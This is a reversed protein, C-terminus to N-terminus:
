HAREDEEARSLLPYRQIKTYGYTIASPVTIARHSALPPSLQHDVITVDNAGLSIALWHVPMTESLPWHSRWHPVGELVQTSQEDRLYWPKADGAFVARVRGAKLLPLVDQQWRQADAKVEDLAQQPRVKLDPLWFLKHTFVLAYRYSQSPDLAKKLFAISAPTLHLLGAHDVATFYILRVGAIEEWYCPQRYLRQYAEPFGQAVHGPDDHNGLVWRTPPLLFQLKLLHHMGSATPWSLQDGGFVVLDPSQLRAQNLVFDLPGTRPAGGFGLAAPDRYASESYGNHSYIHGMFWLTKPQYAKIWSPLGMLAIVWLLVLGMLGTYLGQHSPKPSM